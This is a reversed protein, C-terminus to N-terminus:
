ISALRNNESGISIGNMNRDAALIYGTEKKMHTNWYVRRIRSCSQPEIAFIIILWSTLLLLFMLKSTSM